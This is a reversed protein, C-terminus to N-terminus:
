LMKQFLITRFLFGRKRPFIQLWTVMGQIFKVQFQPNITKLFSSLVKLVRKTAEKSIIKSESLKDAMRTVQHEKYITTLIGNTVDAILLRTSNSGLDISAVRVM